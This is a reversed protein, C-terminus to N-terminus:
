PCITSYRRMFPTTGGPEFYAWGPDRGIHGYDGVRTELWRLEPFTTQGSIAPEPATRSQGTVRTSHRSGDALDNMFSMMTATPSSGDQLIATESLFLLIRQCLAGRM